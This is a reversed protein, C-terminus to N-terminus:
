LKIINNNNSELQNKEDIYQEWINQNVYTELKQLYNFGGRLQVNQLM